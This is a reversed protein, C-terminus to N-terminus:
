AATLSLRAHMAEVAAASLRRDPAAAVLVAAVDALRIIASAVGGAIEHVARAAEDDVTFPGEVLNQLTAELLRRSDVAPFCPLAVRLGVAQELRTDRAVLTVLRGEGALVLCSTPRRERYLQVLQLLTAADVGHADDVLVVDAPSAAAGWGPARVVVVTRSDGLEAALRTLVQTKGVGRPGCLLALGGPRGCSYALKAVAALQVDTLPITM